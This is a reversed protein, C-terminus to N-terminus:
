IRDFGFLIHNPVRSLDLKIECFFALCEVTERVSPFDDFTRVASFYVGSTRRAVEYWVNVVINKKEADMNKLTQIMTTNDMSGLSDFFTPREGMLMVMLGMFEGQSYSINEGAIILSSRVIAMKETKTCFNFHDM